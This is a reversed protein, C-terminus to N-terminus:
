LNVEYHNLSGCQSSYLEGKILEERCYKLNIYFLYEARTSFGIGKYGNYTQVFIILDDIIILLGNSNRKIKTALPIIDKLIIDVVGYSIYYAPVGIGIIGSKQKKIISLMQNLTKEGNLIKYYDKM